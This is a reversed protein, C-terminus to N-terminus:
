KAPPPKVSATLMQIKWVGDQKAYVASWIGEADVTEGKDNKGSIHFKGMAAPTDNDVQWAADVSAELKNFGTKFTAAYAALPDQKGAANIFVGDKTYLAKVCAPDQKVYCEQYSSAIKGAEEKMDQAAAPVILIFPFALALIMRKM